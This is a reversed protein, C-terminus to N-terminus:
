SIKEKVSASNNRAYIYSFIFMACMSVQLIFVSLTQDFRTLGNHISGIEVALYGAVVPLTLLLIDKRELPKRDAWFLLITWGVMLPAGYQLGFRLGAEPQLTVNTFRVFLHPNLMLIAMVADAVIGWWFSIRLFLIAKNM